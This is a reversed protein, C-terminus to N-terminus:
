WDASRNHGKNMIVEPALYEPTGCLTYTKAGPKVKKVFGFDAMKVYGQLDMLLNEPKLDRYILDRDHLYQLALIVSAAYFRAHSESLARGRELQCVTDLNMQVTIANCMWTCKENHAVAEVGSDKLQRVPSPTHTICEFDLTRTELM